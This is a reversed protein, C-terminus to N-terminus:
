FQDLYSSECDGSCFEQTMRDPQFVRGCSPCLREPITRKQLLIEALIDQEYDTLPDTWMTKRRESCCTPITSSATVSSDRWSTM